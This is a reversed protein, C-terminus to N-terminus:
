REGPKKEETKKEERPHPKAPADKREQIREERNNRKIEQRRQIQHQHQIQRERNLGNDTRVPAADIGIRGAPAPRETRLTRLTAPDVPRGPNAQLAQQKVAFSVPRPPPATKTIVQRQAFMARPQPVPRGADNALISERRPAIAASSEVPASAIAAPSVPVAARAVPRSTVFDQRSVATVAGPVTQNVYKVNTINTRNVNTVNTVNTINTVNTVNVRNVYAPSVHYAPQYVERPGLPFWAVGGGGGLNLSVSWHNGGVFAVLAPAYVPRVAVPGPIWGWSGAIFAWRGYHFPAFGWPANDIWTWGWPEVWAWHGFRYPAWGVEVRPVWVAGYEPVTRWAGHAELDEYGVMERSVYRPAPAADERRDRQECFQDFADPPNASRVDQQAGDGTFYATQQPHIAFSAGNATAEAEGSRVTVMTANRDPDTDIRYEGTRLLSIAGNPTDIEYLESDDLHRIRLSIAGETIQIQVTRDDLNLFSMSTGPALRIGSSGIHMEARAGEDAYLHDGITLPYNLTAQTWNDV